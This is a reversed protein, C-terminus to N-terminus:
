EVKTIDDYALQKKSNIGLVKYEIIAGDKNLGIIKGRTLSKSNKSNKFIVNDGVKFVIDENVSSSVNVKTSKVGWVDGIVKVKKGNGKVYVRVNMLYEGKYENTLKDVARELADNNKTKAVGEVNRKLLVYKGNSDINRNSVMTLDGITSYACSSFLAISVIGIIIQKKM